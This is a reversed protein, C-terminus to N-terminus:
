DDLNGPSSHTRERFFAEIIARDAEEVQTFCVGVDYLDKKVRRVHVVRGSSKILRDGLAMVMELCSNVDFSRHVRITVGGLSLDLSKCMGMDVPNNDQDLQTYSVLNVADLRPFRRKEEQPEMVM